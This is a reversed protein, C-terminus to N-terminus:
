YYVFYIKKDMFISDNVVSMFKTTKQSNRKLFKYNM